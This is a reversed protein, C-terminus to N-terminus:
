SLDEFSLIAQELDKRNQDRRSFTTWAIVQHFAAKGDVTTHLYLIRLKNETIIADFEYQVSPRGNILLDTPGGRSQVKELTKQFTSLRNGAYERFGLDPDFNDKPETLVILFAIRRM